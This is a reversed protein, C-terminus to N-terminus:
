RRHKAPENCYESFILILRLCVSQMIRISRYIDSRSYRRGVEAATEEGHSIANRNNVVQDIFFLHRRRLTLTRTIGFMRLILNVHGHRFHSGDTPISPHSLSATKDSVALDLLDLRRDWLSKQGCDKLGALQPDLLLALLGCTVATM